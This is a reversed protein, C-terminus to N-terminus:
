ATVVSSAPAPNSGAAKLNHAQRAVPSSWGADLTKITKRFLDNLLDVPLQRASFENVMDHGMDFWEKIFADLVPSHYDAQEKAAELKLALLKKIERKLEHGMPQALLDTFVVPPLKGLNDRMWTICLIPRLAYFYRKMTYEGTFDSLYKGRINRMFNIYHHALARPSFHAAIIEGLEARFGIPDAYTIPSGLWEVLSPNSKEALLLAKRLDWGAYDLDNNAKYQIDQLGDHLSLYTELPKAFIFRVDYDSDKSHFGWARSGSEAAFVLSLKKGDLRRNLDSLIDTM